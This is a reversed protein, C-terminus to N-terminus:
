NLSVADSVGGDKGFRLTVTDGFAINGDSSLKSKARRETVDYIKGSVQVQAISDKTPYANEYVGSISKSYALLM